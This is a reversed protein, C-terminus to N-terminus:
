VSKRSINQWVIQMESLLKKYALDASSFLWLCPISIHVLCGTDWCGIKGHSDCIIPKAKSKHWKIYIEKQTVKM